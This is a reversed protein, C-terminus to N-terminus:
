RELVIGDGPIPTTADGAGSTKKAADIHHPLPRMSTPRWDRLFVGSFVDGRAEAALRAKVALHRLIAFKASHADMSSLVDPAVQHAREVQFALRRSLDAWEPWIDTFDDM